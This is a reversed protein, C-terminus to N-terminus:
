CLEAGEVLKTRPTDQSFLAEYEVQCVSATWGLSGM